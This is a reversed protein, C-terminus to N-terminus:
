QSTAHKKPLLIAQAIAITAIARPGEAQFGKALEIARDYDLMALDRFISELDFDPIAKNSISGQGKSQFRFILEGDEGTFGDASNAAKVADFTADWVRNPDVLKLSNAVAVLARPLAPDSPEIRRAENTADDIL